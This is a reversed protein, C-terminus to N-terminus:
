KPDEWLPNSQFAKAKKKKKSRLRKPVENWTVINVLCILKWYLCNLNKGVSNVTTTIPSVTCCPFSTVVLQTHTHTQLLQHAPCSLPPASPQLRHNNSQATEWNAHLDVTSEESAPGAARTGAPSVALIILTFSQINAVCICSMNLLNVDLKFM